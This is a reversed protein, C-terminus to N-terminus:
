IFSCNPVCFLNEVNLNEKQGRVRQPDATFPIVHVQLSLQGDVLGDWCVRCLMGNGTAVVLDERRCSISCWVFVFVFM